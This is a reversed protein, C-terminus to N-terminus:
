FNLWQTALAWLPADRRVGSLLTRLLAPARIMLYLAALGVLANGPGLGELGSLGRSLILVFAQVAQVMTVVVLEQLYRAGIPRAVPWALTMLGLPSIAALFMLEIARILYVIALILVLVLYPLWFVIDALVRTPLSIPTLRLAVQSALSAILSNNLRILFICVRMSLLALLVTLTLSIVLRLWDIMAGSIMQAATLLILVLATVGVLSLSFHWLTAVISLSWLNPTTGILPALIGFVGQLIPQVTAAIVTM